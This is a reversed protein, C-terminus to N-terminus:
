DNEILADIDREIMREVFDPIRTQIKRKVESPMWQFNMANMNGSLQFDFGLHSADKEFMKLVPKFKPSGGLLDQSLALFLRSSVLNKGDVSFYGGIRVDATELRIDRLQAHAKNVEFQASARGFDIAKLEPLRFSHGLWNFFAFDTLTGDYVTIDGSLDFQPINTFNMKGSMRGNFKAFHVLLEEMADTDVDTLVINSTIKSPVRSSDVWVRGNLSGDYFPADIEIVKLGEMKTNCAVKVDRISARHENKNTWYTVDGNALDLNPRKYRDYYFSLGRFNVLATEPSLSIDKHDIFDVHAKGDVKLVNDKWAGSLDADAKEFLLNKGGSADGGYLSLHAALVISDLVSINGKLAIPINNLTFDFKEIRIEPFALQVNGDIDLIYTDAHSLDDNEPFNKFYRASVYKERNFDKKATNM